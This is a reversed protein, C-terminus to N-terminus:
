ETVFSYTVAGNSIMLLVNETNTDNQVGLIFTKGCTAGVTYLSKSLEQLNKVMSQYAQMMNPNGNKASLMENALGSPSPILFLVSNESESEEVNINGYKGFDLELSEIAIQKATEFDVQTEKQLNENFGEAVDSENDENVTSEVTTEEQTDETSSDTSSECGIVLIAILASMGILVKLGKTLKM